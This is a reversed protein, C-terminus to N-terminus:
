QAVERPVRSMGPEDGPPGRAFWRLDCPRVGPMPGGHVDKPTARLNRAYRKCSTAGPASSASCSGRATLRGRDGRNRIRARPAPHLGATGTLRGAELSARRPVDSPRRAGRSRPRPRVSRGPTSSSRRWRRWSTPRATGPGLAAPAEHRLSNVALRTRGIVSALRSNAVLQLEHTTRRGDVTQRHDVEDPLDPM